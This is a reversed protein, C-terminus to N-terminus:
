IYFISMKKIKKAVLYECLLEPTSFNSPVILDPQEMNVELYRCNIKYDFDARSNVPDVNTGSALQKYPM